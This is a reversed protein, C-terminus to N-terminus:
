RWRCRRWVRSRCPWGLNRAVGDDLGMLTLPRLLLLTLMVGGLLQPWLREVGGWDTQTLTGTSWLFMSQLQDHHFIVLLQNIAGCYLSVVLGALILTVPSLRKGWAVGFVILGVVCAGALAAFQSAMAGSRGSRLSPLGWNRAQQLAWRRRNRWRTVCCKSFCCAWWGRGAGVLLSIALRPLLSYHFIMQEIVDIDPSRAAQAWQSRPLAQSFNMWTLAAAVIVLLALLLAPFLAIRKSM